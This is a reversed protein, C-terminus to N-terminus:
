YPVKRPQQDIPWALSTTLNVVLKAFASFTHDSNTVIKSRFNLFNLSFQKMALPQLEECPGLGTVLSASYHHLAM